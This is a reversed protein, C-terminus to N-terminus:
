IILIILTYEHYRNTLTNGKGLTPCIEGGASGMMFPVVPALTKKVIEFEENADSNGGSMTVIRRVICSFLLVGNIDNKDRVENVCNQATTLIDESECKLLTFTSGEDVNGHFVATGDDSFYSLVRIVPIGDYDTRKRQDILFPLFLYNVSSEGDKEFGISEFYKYANMGNIEHVVSGTSKSIDGTYHIVKEKPMTGILFSPNINGYCLVFPMANKSNEGNYITECDEFTPTDDMALTGFLPTEPILNQWTKVYDDGAFHSLLIPPFILALRPAGTEDGSVNEYAAKVSADLGDKLNDAAGSRFRVDDSTMIFITLILEGAEDNVAQAATTVGVVDFPLNSCIFKLMGSSIFETHCMIIGVSNELLNIKEELQANIENLATTRDDIEYTYVSACKLM